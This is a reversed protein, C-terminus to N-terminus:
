KSILLKKTGAHLGEATLDLFYMGSAISSVDLHLQQTDYFTTRYVLQGQVNLLSLHCTGKPLQQLSVRDRAPQPFITWATTTEDVIGAPIGVVGSRYQVQNTADDQWVVHVQGNQWILDPFSQQGAAMETVNIVPNNWLDAAGSFSYRLYIEPNGGSSEMWAVVMTDGSGTIATYNQINASPAADNLMRNYAMQGTGLHTAGLWVRAYGNSGQSMFVTYVSDGVFHSSSGSSPCAALM